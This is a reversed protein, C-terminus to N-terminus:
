LTVVQILTDCYGKYKYDIQYTGINTFYAIRRCGKQILEETALVGGVYQDSVIRYDPVDDILPNCEDITIIPIHLLEERKVSAHRTALSVICDVGSKVLSLISQRETENM